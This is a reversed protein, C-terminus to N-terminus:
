SNTGAADPCRAEESRHLCRHEGTGYGKGIFCFLLEKVCLLVIPLNMQKMNNQIKQIIHNPESLIISDLTDSSWM